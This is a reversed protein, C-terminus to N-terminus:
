PRSRRRKTRRTQVGLGGLLLLPALGLGCVSVGPSSSAPPPTAAAAAPTPLSAPRGLPAITPVAAASIPTPTPPYPREPLGRAARWEAELGDVNVGYVQQLAQDTSRGAALALLLDQMAARGYTALLYDVVSYSQAYASGAEDSHAPFSGNLSRLPAFNNAAQAQDLAARIDATPEGEAYVALGEELWTPRSGGVCSRAFQGTVLHALEHRVTSRGWDAASDPSVGILITNYEDFAVGGAWDQVYLVADRMDAASGYIYFQVDNQLEIGMDNELRALGAVAADLLLPGVDAGRYWHLTIGDESVTQWDFRGDTFTLSQRPTTTQEGADDTLVWEWWLSTGPPPNGSRSMVWTWDATLGNQSATLEVPVQAAADLCSVKDVDYRLTAQTVATDPPLELVFRVDNPYNVLAENRLPSVATQAAAVATLWLLLGLLLIFRTLWRANM